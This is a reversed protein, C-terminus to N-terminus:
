SNVKFGYLAEKMLEFSDKEVIPRRPIPSTKIVSDPLYSETVPGKIKSSYNYNQDVVTEVDPVENLVSEPIAESELYDEITPRVRYETGTETDYKKVRGTGLVANIRDVAISSANVISRYGLGNSTNRRHATIPPRARPFVDDFKPEIGTKRRSVYSRIDSEDLVPSTFSQRGVVSASDSPGIPRTPSNVFSFRRAQAPPLTVLNTTIKSARDVETDDIIGNSSLIMLTDAVHKGTDATRGAETSRDVTMRVALEIMAVFPPSLSFLMTVFMERIVKDNLGMREYYKSVTSSKDLLRESMKKNGIHALIAASIVIVADSMSIDRRSNVTTKLFVGLDVEPNLLIANSIEVSVLTAVDRDEDNTVIPARRSDKNREMASVSSSRAKRGRTAIERQHRRLQSMNYKNAKV